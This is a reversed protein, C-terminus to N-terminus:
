MDARCMPCKEIPHGSSCSANYCGICVGHSCHNSMMMEDAKKTEFCIPCEIEQTQHCAPCTDTMTAHCDRCMGSCSSHLCKTIDSPDAKYEHCCSCTKHTYICRNHKELMATRQEANLHSTMLDHIMTMAAQLVSLTDAELSAIRAEYQAAQQALRGEYHVVAEAISREARTLVQRPPQAAAAARTQVRRPPEPNRRRSPAQVPTVPPSVISQQNVSLQIVRIFDTMLDRFKASIVTRTRVFQTTSVQNFKFWILNNRYRIGIYPVFDDDVGFDGETLPVRHEPNGIRKINVGYLSANYSAISRSRVGGDVARLLGVMATRMEQRLQEAITVRLKGFMIGSLKYLPEDKVQRHKMVSVIPTNDEQFSLRGAGAVAAAM